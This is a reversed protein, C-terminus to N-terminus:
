SRECSFLNLNTVGLGHQKLKAILINYDATSHLARFGSQCNSLLNNDNLFKYFQDFIIKECVKAIVPIISIPRYNNVDYSDGSKFVPTVRALKWDDPFIGSSISCNFVEAISTCIVPASIKLLKSSISDLGTAKKESLKLLLELVRNPHTPNIVFKKDTTAVYKLFTNESRSGTAGM